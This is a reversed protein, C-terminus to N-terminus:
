STFQETAISVGNCHTEISAQRILHPFLHSKVGSQQSQGVSGQQYKAGRHGEDGEEEKDASAMNSNVDSDLDTGTLAPCDTSYEIEEVCPPEDDEFCNHSKHDLINHDLDIHNILRWIYLAKMDKTVSLLSQCFKMGMEQLEKTGTQLGKYIGQDCGNYTSEMTYSRLVGM